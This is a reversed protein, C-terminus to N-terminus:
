ALAGGIIAGLVLPGVHGLALVAGGFGAIIGLLPIGTLVTALLFFMIGFLLGPLFVAILASGVSGAKKGGVYGAILPGLFPLWFLLLSLLGMWGMAALISGSSQSARPQTM